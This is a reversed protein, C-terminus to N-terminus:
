GRQYAERLLMAAVLRNDPDNYWRNRGSPHPLWRWETPSSGMGVPLVSPHDKPLGLARWVESGLVIVLEESPDLCWRAWPGAEEAARRNWAGRLLNLRRFGYMYDIRHLQPLGLRPENLLRFIRHGTSNVPAPHLAAEVRQSLPNNMGLLVARM